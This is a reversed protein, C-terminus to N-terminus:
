GGQPAAVPAGEPPQGPPGGPKGGRGPPPGGPQGPAGPVGPAGPPPGAAPKTTPTPPVVEGNLNQGVEIRRANGASEYEIADLNISKIRGVAIAGGSAVSTVRKGSKDEIFATFLGDAEVVGKLVFNAGPGGAGPGVVKPAGHAFVNRTQLIAFEGPLVPRAVAAAQTAPGAPQTAAPAGRPQNSREVPATTAAPATTAPAITSPADARANTGLSFSAWAGMLAGLVTMRYGWLGTM